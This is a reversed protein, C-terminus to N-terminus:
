RRRQKDPRLGADIKKYVDEEANVSWYLDQHGYRPLVHKHVRRHAGPELVRLLWEYMRDISDRHWVQNENGTILTVHYEGAALRGSKEIATIDADDADWRATWGRRLNQVCHMYAVLPM